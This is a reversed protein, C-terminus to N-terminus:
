GKKKGATYSYIPWPTCHAVATYLDDINHAQFTHLMLGQWAKQPPFCLVSLFVDPVVLLGTVM